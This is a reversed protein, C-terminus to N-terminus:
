VFMEVGLVQDKISALKKLARPRDLPYLKDAPVGDAMLAMEMMATMM